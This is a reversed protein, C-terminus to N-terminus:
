TAQATLDLPISFNFTSGKNIESEVWIKGQHRRILENCLNLGVGTGKENDTGYTTKRNDLEFLTPLLEKPIGIGSDTISTILQQDVVQNKIDITGGRPTFKM